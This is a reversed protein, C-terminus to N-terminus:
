FFTVHLGCAKRGSARARRANSSSSRLIATTTPRSRGSSLNTKRERNSCLRKILLIGFPEGATRGDPRVNHRGRPVQGFCYILMHVFSDSRKEGCGFFINVQVTGGDGRQRFRRDVGNKRLQVVYGRISRRMKRVPDRCLLTSAFEDRFHEAD